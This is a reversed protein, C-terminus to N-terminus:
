FGVRLLPHWGFGFSFPCFFRFFNGFKFYVAIGDVVICGRGDTGGETWRDMWRPPRGSPRGRTELFGANSPLAVLNGLFM